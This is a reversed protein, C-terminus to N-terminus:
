LLIAQALVVLDFRLFVALCCLCATFAIVLFSLWSIVLELFNMSSFPM